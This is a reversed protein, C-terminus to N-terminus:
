SRIKANRWELNLPTAISYSPIKGTKDKTGVEQGTPAPTASRRPDGVSERHHASARRIRAADHIDVGFETPIGEVARLCALIYREAVRKRDSENRGLYSRRALLLAYEPAALRFLENAQSQSMAGPNRRRRYHAREMARERIRAAENVFRAPPDAITDLVDRWPRGNARVRVHQVNKIRFRGSRPSEGRRALRAMLVDIADVRRASAM